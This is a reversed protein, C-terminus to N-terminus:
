VTDSLYCKFHSIFSRQIFLLTLRLSVVGRLECCAFLPVRRGTCKCYAAIATFSRAGAVVACLSLGLIAALRHRVDRRRRPDAVRALVGLLRQQEQTADAALQVLHCIVPDILSSPSAPM